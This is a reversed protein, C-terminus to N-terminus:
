TLFRQNKSIKPAYVINELPIDYYKYVYYVDIFHSHITAHKEMSGDPLFSIEVHGIKNIDVHDTTLKLTTKNEKAFAMLEEQLSAEEDFVDHLLELSVDEDYLFVDKLTEKLMEVSETEFKYGLQYSFREKMQANEFVLLSFAHEFPDIGHISSLDYFEYRDLEYVASEDMNLILKVVLLVDLLKVSRKQQLHDYDTLKLGLLDNAEFDIIRSLELTFDSPRFLLQHSSPYGKTTKFFPNAGRDFLYYIYSAYKAHRLAEHFFTLGFENFANLDIKRTVLFDITKRFLNEDDIKLVNILDDSDFHQSLDDIPEIYELMNQHYSIIEYIVDESKLFRKFAKQRILYAFVDENDLAIKLLEKREKSDLGYADYFQKFYDLDKTQIMYEYMMLFQNVSFPIKDLAEILLEEREFIILVMPLTLRFPNFYDSYDYTNILYDFVRASNYAACIEIPDIMLDKDTYSEFIQVFSELDDDIISKAYPTIEIMEESLFFDKYQNIM